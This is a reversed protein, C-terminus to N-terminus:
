QKDAVLKFYYKDAEVKGVIRELANYAKDETVIAKKLEAHTTTRGTAIVAEALRMQAARKEQEKTAKRKPAAKREQKRAPAKVSANAYYAYRENFWMAVKAIDANFILVQEAAELARLCAERTDANFQEPLNVFNFKPRKKAKALDAQRKLAARLHERTKSWSEQSKSTVSNQQNKYNQKKM